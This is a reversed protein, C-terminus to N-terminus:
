PVIYHECWWRCPWLKLHKPADESCSVTIMIIQLKRLTLMNACAYWHLTSGLDCWRVLYYLIMAIDNRLIDITNLAVIDAFRQTIVHTHGHLM